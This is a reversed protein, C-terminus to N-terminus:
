FKRIPGDSEFPISFDSEFQIEFSRLDRSKRKIVSLFFMVCAVCGVNYDNTFHMEKIFAIVNHFQLVFNEAKYNGHSM